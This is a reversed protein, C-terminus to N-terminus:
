LPGKRLQFDDHHLNEIKLWMAYHYLAIRILNPPSGVKQVRMMEALVDVERGDFGVHPWYILAPDYAAEVEPEIVNGDDTLFCTAAM